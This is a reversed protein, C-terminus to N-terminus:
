KILSCSSRNFDKLFGSPMELRIGFKAINNDEILGFKKFITHSFRWGSRGVCFLIKKCKIEDLETQIIFYKKQKTIDYIENDFLLKINENKEIRESIIKSLAHINKPYLQFYDNLKIDFNNNLLKKQMSLNPGKDKIIKCDSVEKLMSKVYKAAKKIKKDNVIDSLKELDSIFIKGDGMPLSGLWGELQRRRKMPPRGFDVGVISIDKNKESLKLAAFAGAVGLGLIAVDASIM